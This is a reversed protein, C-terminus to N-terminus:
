SRLNYINGQVGSYLPSFILDPRCNNNMQSQELTTLPRFSWIIPRKLSTFLRFYMILSLTLILYSCAFILPLYSFKYFFAVGTTTLSFLYSISRIKLRSSFYLLFDPISIKQYKLLDEEIIFNSIEIKIFKQLIFDLILVSSFYSIVYVSVSGLFLSILGSLILSIVIILVRFFFPQHQREELNDSL